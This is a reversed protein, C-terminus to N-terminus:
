AASAEKSLPARNRNRQLRFKRVKVRDGDIDATDWGTFVIRYYEGVRAEKLLYALHGPAIVSNDGEDNRVVAVTSPKKDTDKLKKVDISMLYGEIADGREDFKFRPPFKTGLDEWQGANAGNDM